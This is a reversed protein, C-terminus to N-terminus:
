AAFVPRYERRGDRGVEIGPLRGLFLYSRHFWFRRWGPGVWRGRMSNGSLLLRHGSPRPPAASAKELRGAIAPCARIERDLIVDMSDGNTFLEDPSAVVGVSARNESLPIYWFWGRNGATHIILTAGEDIGTDRLGNQYHSFVSAKALRADKKRLGLKRSVLSNLGTADVLVHSRITVDSGGSTSAKVGVVQDGEFLIEKATVGSRVDVGKEAANDLLM